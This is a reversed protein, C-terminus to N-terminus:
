AEEDPCQRSARANLIEALHRRADRVVSERLYTPADNLAVKCLVRIRKAERDSFEPHRGIDQTVHMLLERIQTDTVTKATLKM